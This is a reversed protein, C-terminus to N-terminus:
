AARQLEKRVSFMNILAVGWLLLGLAYGAWSMWPPLSRLPTDPSTVLRMTAAIVLLLGCTLLVPIVTRRAEVSKITPLHARHHTADPKTHVHGLTEMAPAPVMVADDDTTVIEAMGSSPLEPSSLWDSSPIASPPAATDSQPLGPTQPRMPAQPRAVSPKRPAAPFKAKSATEEKKQQSKLAGPPLPTAGPPVVPRPAVPKPAGQMPVPATPRAKAPRNNPPQAAAGSSPAGDEGGGMGELARALDENDRQTM